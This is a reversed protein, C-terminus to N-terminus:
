AIFASCRWVAAPEQVLGVYKLWQGAQLCTLLVTWKSRLITLSTETATLPPDPIQCLPPLQTSVM